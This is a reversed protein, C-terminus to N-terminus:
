PYLKIKPMSCGKKYVMCFIFLDDKMWVEDKDKFMLVSAVEIKKM